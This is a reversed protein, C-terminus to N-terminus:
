ESREESAAPMKEPDGGAEVRHDEALRLDLSLHLAGVLQRQDLLL